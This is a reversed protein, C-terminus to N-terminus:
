ERGIDPSKPNISNQIANRIEFLEECSAGAQLASTFAAYDPAPESGADDQPPSCAICSVFIFTLILTRWTPTVMYGGELRFYDEEVPLGPPM